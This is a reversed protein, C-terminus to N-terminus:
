FRVSTPPVLPSRPTRDYRPNVSPKPRHWLVAHTTERYAVSNQLWATIDSKFLQWYYSGLYPRLAYLPM